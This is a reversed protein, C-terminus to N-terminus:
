INEKISLRFSPFSLLTGVIFSFQTSLVKIDL